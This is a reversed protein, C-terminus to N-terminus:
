TTNERMIQMYNHIFVLSEISLDFNDENQISYDDLIQLINKIERITDELRIKKLKLYEIWLSTIVPSTQRKENLRRMTEDYEEISM